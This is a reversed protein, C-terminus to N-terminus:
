ASAAPPDGDFPEFALGVDVLEKDKNVVALVTVGHERMVQAVKRPDRETTVVCNMNMIQEVPAMPLVDKLLARRIDGDSVTGVVKKGDVVVVARHKNATIKVMATRVTDTAAVTYLELDRAM